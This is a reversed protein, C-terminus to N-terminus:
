SVHLEGLIRYDDNMGNNGTGIQRRQLEIDYTGRGAVTSYTALLGDGDVVLRTLRMLVDKNSDFQLRVDPSGITRAVIGAAARYRVTVSVRGARASASILTATPSSGTWLRVLHLNQAQRPYTGVYSTWGVLISGSQAFAVSSYVSAGADYRSLDFTGASGFSSDLRGNADQLYVWTHDTTGGRGNSVAKSQILVRQGNTLGPTSIGHPLSIRTVRGRALTLQRTNDLGYTFIVYGGHPNIQTSSVVAYTGIDFDRESTVQGAANITLVDVDAHTEIPFSSDIDDSPIYRQRATLVTWGGGGTNQVVSGSLVDPPYDDHVGDTFSNQWVRTASGRPGDGGVRILEDSGQLGSGQSVARVTRLVDVGGSDNVVASLVRSTDRGGTFDVVHGGGFARDRGGDGRLRVVSSEDILYTYGEQTALLTVTPGYPNPNILGSFAVGDNSFTRDPTGDESLAVVVIQGGTAPWDGTYGTLMLRGLAGSVAKGNINVHVGAAKDVAAQSFHWGTDVPSAALLCRPELTDVFPSHSPPM